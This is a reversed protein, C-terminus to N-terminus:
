SIEICKITSNDILAILAMIYRSFDTHNTSEIKKRLINLNISISVNNLFLFSGGFEENYLFNLGVAFDKNFLEDLKDVVFEQKDLNTERWEFEPNDLYVISGNDNISWGTALLLKIVDKLKYEKSFDIDISATLGM